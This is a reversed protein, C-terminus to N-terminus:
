RSDRGCSKCNNRRTTPSIVAQPGRAPRPPAALLLALAILLRRM